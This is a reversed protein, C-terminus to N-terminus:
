RAPTGVRGSTRLLPTGVLVEGIGASHELMTVATATPRLLVLARHWPPDGALILHDLLHAVAEPRTRRSVVLALRPSM